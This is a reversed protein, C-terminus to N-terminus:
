FNVSQTKIDKGDENTAELYITNEGRVLNVTSEFQGSQANFAFNTIRESNVRFTVQESGSINKITAIVTSRGVSPNLPNTVPQSVSEITIVPPKKTSSKYIMTTEASASGSDNSAEVRVTTTGERLNIRASLEKRKVDFTFTPWRKRNVLLKIQNKDSVNEIKILVNQKSETVSGGPKSPNIFTVKPRASQLPPTFSFRVSAEDQGDVNKAAISVTHQGPTLQTLRANFQGNKYSFGTTIKNDVKFTIDRALTVNAITATVLVPEKTLNVNNSPASILVKPLQAVKYTVIKNDEANGSNNRASVVIRNTGTKLTLRTSLQGSQNNFDFNQWKVGNLTVTIQQKNDVNRVTAELQQSPQATTSQDPGPKTITVEPSKAPNYRVTVADNADGDTNNVEIRISNNGAELTLTASIEQRSTNFSFNSIRRNNLFLDVDNKNTVNQTKASLVVQAQNHISNNTPKTINVTPLSVPKLYRVNVQDEANGDNNQVRVLVINNGNELTLTATIEQRGTNFNFNNFRNGNIYVQIDGSSNVNRTSVKLPVRNNSVTANNQPQNINVTPPNSAKNYRVNVQDEANGDGNQVRVQITNNGEELVLDATVERTSNNFSFNTIRRGNLFLSIESKSRIEETNARMNIRSNGTTSNNGPRTITVRPPFAVSERFVIIVEDSARGSPNEASIELRNNGQALRINMVLQDQSAIFDFNSLARGNLRVQIQDKREVNAVEAVIRTTPLDTEVRERNPDTINVYPPAQEAYSIFAEAEDVGAQNRAIIRVTNRGRDLQVNARLAGTRSDFSFTNLPRGNFLCEINNKNSVEQISAQITFARSDSSTERRPPNTITVNPLRRDVVPPTVVDQYFIVLTERDTGVSNSASIILENTGPQLLVNSTFVGDNFDFPQTRGNLRCTIDMAGNINRINARVTGSSNAMTHPSRAPSILDIVPALARYQRAEIKWRLAFNTYHYIDKNEDAWQQGDLIDTRSFTLRHGLHMSFRPTFQYGLELGLSPMIGLKGGQGTFGDAMSEYDGDLINNRLEKRIQSTRKQEDISAYGEYYASGNSNAQDIKTRYWDLGLGGYISAIVGTKERLRNLTLVAELSLEGIDTQHNQFVFGRNENLDAPYNSYDLVQNGNLVKNNEIQYSRTADLGYNRAYLFRGRLDFALPAGTRQYLNKALTAGFGYGGNLARVDSSQYSIGANIGFTWYGSENTGATKQQVGVQAMLATTSILTAFLLYIKRIIKM